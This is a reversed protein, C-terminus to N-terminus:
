GGPQLVGNVRLAYPASDTVTETPEDFIVIAGVSEAREDLLERLFRGSLFADHRSDLPIRVVDSKKGHERRTVLQLTFGHVAAPHVQAPSLWGSLSSGDAVAAGGLAVNRLWFGPPITAAPDDPDGAVSGDTVNRFAVHVSKGAFAALDCSESRWGGSYATYGPLNEAMVPRAHPSADTRSSTCAVSTYSYGGDTSVQVFTFDWGGTPDEELNWQAQFSLQAGGAPVTLPRVITRDLGNGAGSYLAAPGGNPPTRDVWWEVPRGPIATAGDFTLSRIERPRLARGGGDRLLVYDAGNPAAGRAAYARPNDWNVSSALSATWDHLAREASGRRGLAEDVGALGNADGRHLATMLRRGYRHRLYDMFSYAAGYDCNIDASDGWLTLSNEPGGPSDPLNGLFCQMHKDYGIETVPRDPDAYGTLSRAWDALGENLWTAEDPDAHHELLHQFEHAFVGEILHPWAPSNTCPDAAPEHPPRRGTRHLWDYADITMLNRDFLDDLQSVYLGVGYALEHRNNLDFFAEDRINDVLVVVKDGAGQAHFPPGLLANTGDRSPMVSFVSSERPYIVRDFARVLDRVQDDGVRTRAGNRCDGPLFGLDGAVWVEIHRGAGRFFYPKPYIAGHATDLGVWFRLEGPAPEHSLLRIRSRQRKPRLRAGRLQLSSRVSQPVHLAAGGDGRGSVTAERGDSAALATSGAVGSLLALLAAAITLPRRNPM